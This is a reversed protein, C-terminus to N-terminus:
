VPTLMSPKAVSYIQGSQKDRVKVIQYGVDYEKGIVATFASTHSISECFIPNGRFGEEPADDKTIIAHIKAGVINKNSGAPTFDYEKIGVVKIRM